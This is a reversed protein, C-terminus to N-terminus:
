FQLQADLKIAAKSTAETLGFQLGLGVTLNREEEEEAETKDNQDGKGFSYYVVPGISHNQDNFSCSNALDEINGFMELALGWKRPLTYKLQWGYNFGLGQATRNPGVQNTFLPDLVLSVSGKLLEIIPGFAIENADGGATAQSYGGRLAFGLGDGKLEIVEYQAEGEVSTLELDQGLSQEFGTTISVLWRDTLGYQGELEHSQRIPDFDPDPLGWHLAGRYEIEHEGKEVTSEQIEFEAFAETAWLFAAALTLLRAILLRM